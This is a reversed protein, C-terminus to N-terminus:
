KLEMYRSQYKYEELDTYLIGFVKGYKWLLIEDPDKNYNKALAKITGLEGTKISLEKIGARREKASPEYKLMTSEKQVWSEIGAIIQFYYEVLESYEKPSIKYDHLCEFTKEFKDLDTLKNNSFIKGIEIRQGFTMEGAKIDIKSLLVQKATMQRKSAEPVEANNSYNVKMKDVDLNNAILNM